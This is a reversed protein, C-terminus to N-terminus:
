ELASKTTLQRDWTQIFQLRPPLLFLQSPLTAVKIRSFFRDFFATRTRYSTTTPKKAILRGCNSRGLDNNSITPEVKGASNSSWFLYRCNARFTQGPTPLTGRATPGINRWRCHGVPRTVPSTVPRTLKATKSQAGWMVPLEARLDIVTLGPLTTLKM